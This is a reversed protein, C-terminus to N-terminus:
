CIFSVDTAELARVVFVGFGLVRSCTLMPIMQSTDGPAHMYGLLIWPSSDFLSFKKLYWTIVPFHRRSHHCRCLFVSSIFLAYQM